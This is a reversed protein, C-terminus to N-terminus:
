KVKQENSQYFKSFMTRQMFFGALSGFWRNLHYKNKTDILEIVNGDFDKLYVLDAGAAKNKEPPTIFEVRDKLKDYWGSVNSVELAFHQQGVQEWRFDSSPLSQSYEFVEIGGGKPTRIMGYRISIGELGYLRKVLEPDMEDAFVLPFKFADWYFSVADELNSVVLAVHSLSSVKM